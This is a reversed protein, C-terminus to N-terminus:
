KLMLHEIQRNGRMQIFNITKMHPDYDVTFVVDGIKYNDVLFHKGLLDSYGEKTQTPVGAKQLVIDRTDDFSVNFPFETLMCCSRPYANFHSFIPGGKEFVVMDDEDYIASENTFGLEMGALESVVYESETVDYHTLDSFTESLFYRFGNENLHSGFHFILEKYSHM